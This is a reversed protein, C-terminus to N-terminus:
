PRRSILLLNSPRLQGNLVMTRRLINTIHKVVEVFKTIFRRLFSVKGLFSQREKKNRPIDIKHIAVVRSPDIRIGEESILHCLIKGEKMAFNSKQSNILHWVKQM